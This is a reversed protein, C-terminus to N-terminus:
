LTLWIEVEGYSRTDRQGGTSHVSLIGVREIFSEDIDAIRSQLKMTGAQDRNSAPILGEHDPQDLVWLILLGGSIPKAIANPAVDSCTTIPDDLAFEM